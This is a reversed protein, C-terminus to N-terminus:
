RATSPPSEPASAPKATAALAAKIRDPTMPLDLLRAGTADHIANALVAGILIIAPEGGGQPPSDDANLIVTDIKPLWSFLPLSYTDFNRDLVAGDKFRIQEALAYGLGMTIAGEMQITAGAPNIVLGMEQICLIRKVVVKGETPDVTVEAITAVYTGADFGCAVGLGRGTAGAAPQWGWKEAVARLVRIARPDTLQRLRFEIPDVGALMALHDIHSERAFANTNCGPGRWAGVPFPHVGPPGWFDGVASIQHHPVAYVLDSGRDGAFKVNYDWFAIRGAADFGSQVHVVAAPRFTDLFFEEERTWM